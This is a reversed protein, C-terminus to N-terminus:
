EIMLDFRSHLVRPFGERKRGTIKLKLIWGLLICSIQSNSIHDQHISQVTVYTRRGHRLRKLFEVTVHTTIFRSPHAGGKSWDVWTLTRNSNRSWFKISVLTALYHKSFVAFYQRDSVVEVALGRDIQFWQSGKRWESLRVLPRMRPTYRGRGVAGPADYAEVFNKRSKVLYNYVTSLNFLPICSESLLVFRRNRFDLLANALLRREAEVMSIEGWKVEKSPIRRGYFVSSQPLTENFSPHSHVYISYLGENGEFFREWLPALLVPGKTLFMFKVKPKHKFPPEKIKPVLSARWLLEQENMDHMAKQDDAKLLDRLGHRTVLTTTVNTRNSSVPHPPSPSSSHLQQRIRFGLPSLDPLCFALAIGVLLGSGFLLLHSFFNVLHLQSNFSLRLKLYSVSSAPSAEQQRTKM